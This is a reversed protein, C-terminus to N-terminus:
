GKRRAPEENRRFRSRPSAGVVGRAEVVQLVRARHGGPRAYVGTGTLAHEIQSGRGPPFRCLDRGLHVIVADEYGVIGDGLPRPLQHAVELPPPHAVRDDSRLRDFAEGFPEAGPEIAHEQVGGAGTLRHEVLAGSRAQVPAGCDHVPARAPLHVEQLRSGPEHSGPAAQDVRGAGERGFLVLLHHPCEEGSV